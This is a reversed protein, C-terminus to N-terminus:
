EYVGHCIANVRDLRSQKCLDKKETLSDLLKSDQVDNYLVCSYILSIGKLTVKSTQIGGGGFLM